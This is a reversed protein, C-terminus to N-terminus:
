LSEGSADRLMEYIAHDCPLKPFVVEPLPVKELKWFAREKMGVDEGQGVQTKKSAAEKDKLLINFMETGEISDDDEGTMAIFSRRENEIEEATLAKEYRVSQRGNKPAASPSRSRSSSASSTDDDGSGSGCDDQDGEEGLDAAQDDMLGSLGKAMKITAYLGDVDLGKRQERRHDRLVKDIADSKGDYASKKFDERKIVNAQVAASQQAEKLKRRRESIPDLSPRFVYPEVRATTRRSRQVRAAPGEQSRSPLSLSSSVHETTSATLSSLPGDFDSDYSAPVASPSSPLPTTIARRTSKKIDLEPLQELEDDDDDDDDYEVTRQRRSPRSEAEQRERDEQEAKKRARLRIQEIRTLGAYLAEEQAARERALSAAQTKSRPSNTYIVVEPYGGSRKRPSM